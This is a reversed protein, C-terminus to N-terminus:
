TALEREDAVHRPGEGDGDDLLRPDLRVVDDPREGAARALEAPLDDDDGAVLVERLEDVAPRARRGSPPPSRAPRSSRGPRPRSSARRGAPRLDDLVMAIRPSLISLTGPMGPTPSTVAAASTRWKPETSSISAAGPPSGSPPPGRPPRSASPSSRRSRRAAGSSDCAPRAASRGRAARERRVREAALRRVVGPVPREEALELERPQQLVQRRRRGGGAGLVVSTTRSRPRARRRPRPARAARGRDPRRDTARRRPARAGIRHEADGEGAPAAGEVQREAM